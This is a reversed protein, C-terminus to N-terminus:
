WVCSYNKFFNYAKKNWNGPCNRYKNAFEHMSDVLSYVHFTMEHDYLHSFLEIPSKEGNMIEAYLDDIEKSVVLPYNKNNAVEIYNVVVSLNVYLGRTRYINVVGEEFSISISHKGLDYYVPKPTPLSILKNEHLHKWMNKAHKSFRYLNKSLSGLKASVNILFIYHNQIDFNYISNEVAKSYFSTKTSHISKAVEKYKDKVWEVFVEQRNTEELYDCAIHWDEIDVGKIM